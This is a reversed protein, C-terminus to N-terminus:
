AELYKQAYVQLPTHLFIFAISYILAIVILLNQYGIILSSYELLGGVLCGSMNAAFASTSNTVSKFRQAFILNSFFIPAFTIASATVLRLLWPLSLLYSAPVLWCILLSALLALFLISIPLMRKRGALLISLYVSTLIGIFVFANVQWTTGFLLAFQITSKTELLLFACGLLFLDFYHTIASLSGGSYRIAFISTFLIFILCLMYMSSIDAFEMYFFPHDDTAPVAASNLSWRTNCQLATPSASVTLVSLWHNRGSNGDICPTQQFATLLTQGLRDVIWGTRYYNYMAFVGDPKLHQRVTQMSELTLLYNELRISSQRAILTLSDALAIIVLDYKQRSQELFARGDNIYLSVRPDAYPADPNLMKGFDALAPDIEVADVHKAGEALAIAVDGGTGAGIILVNDLTRKALHQYPYFYFPKYHHRQQVSEVFQQPMGNVNIAYRGHTYPNYTIRYYASWMKQPSSSELYFVTTMVALAAIQMFLWLSKRPLLSIFLLNIVLAWALPPLRWWSLLTFSMVGLLSGLIEFQYARLSPLKRFANATGKALSAMVLMVCIFLGPLTIFLPYVHHHFSQMYYNLDDTRPDIYIQYEFHFHYCLLVISALLIPALGFGNERKSLFGVAIGLFSALLIYNSFFALFMFNATTYRILVLEVFLM